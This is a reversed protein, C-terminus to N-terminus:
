AEEPDKPDKNVDANMSEIAILTDELDSLKILNRALSTVLRNAEKLRRIDEIRLEELRELRFSAGRIRRYCEALLEPTPEKGFKYIARLAEAVSTLENYLRKNDSDSILKM